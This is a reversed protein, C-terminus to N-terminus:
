SIITPPEMCSTPAPNRMTVSFVGGGVQGFEAAYNSTQIAVEQIADVSPQSQQTTSAQGTNGGEQGEILLSQTNAPTGNIRVATNPMYLAGPILQVMGMPNRIGASGSQGAGVGLVPLDDLSKSSVDHSINGTETDLLPAAETVNVSESASGVELSM